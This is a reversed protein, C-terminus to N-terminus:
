QVMRSLAAKITDPLQRMIRGKERDVPVLVVTASVFTEQRDVSQIKYTWVMRVGSMPEMKARVLVSMGMRVSRHYRIDLEVVPLDCGLAVLDAFNVGLLRLYEVRAEEMWAIYTGHWAVGAYDTHHPYTQVPYEFWQDATM